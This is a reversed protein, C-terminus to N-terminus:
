NQDKQGSIQELELSLHPLIAWTSKFWYKQPGSRLIYSYIMFFVMQNINIEKNQAFIWQM